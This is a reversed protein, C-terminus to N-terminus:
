YGPPDTAGFGDGADREDPLVGPDASGVANPDPETLFDHLSPIDDLTPGRDATAQLTKRPIDTLLEREADGGADREVAEDAAERAEDLKERIRDLSREFDVSEYNEVAAELHAVRTEPDDALLARRENRQADLHALMEERREPPVDQEALADRGEALAAIAAEHDGATSYRNSAVVAHSYTPEWPDLFSYRGAINRARDFAALALAHNRKSRHRHGVTRAREFRAHGVVWDLDITQAAAAAGAFCLEDARSDGRGVEGTWYLANALVYAFAEFSRDATPVVADRWAAGREWYDADEARNTAAASSREATRGAVYHKADGVGGTAAVHALYYAFFRGDGRTELDRLDYGLSDLLSQAATPSNCAIYMADALADVADVDGIEAARDLGEALTEFAGRSDLAPGAPTTVGARLIDYRAAHLDDSASGSAAAVTDLLAALPGSDLFESCAFALAVPDAVDTLLDRAAAEDGAVADTCREDFTPGPLHVATTAGGARLRVRPLGAGDDVTVWHTDDDVTARVRGDPDTEVSADSGAPFDLTYWRQRGGGGDEHDGVVRTITVTSDGPLPRTWRFRRSM